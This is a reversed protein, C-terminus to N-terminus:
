ILCFDRYSLNGWVLKQYKPRLIVANLEEKSQFFLIPRERTLNQFFGNVSSPIKLKLKKTYFLSNDRYFLNGWIFKQYKPRLIVANLEEKLYFFLIPRERTLNKLM